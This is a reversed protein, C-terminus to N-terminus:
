LKQLTISTSEGLCTSPPIKRIGRVGGRHVLRSMERGGEERDQGMRTAVATREVTTSDVVSGSVSSSQTHPPPPPIEIYGRELHAFEMGTAGRPTTIADGSSQTVQHDTTQVLM